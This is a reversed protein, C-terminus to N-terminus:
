SRWYFRTSMRCSFISQAANLSTQQTCSVTDWGVDCAPCNGQATKVCQKEGCSCTTFWWTNNTTCITTQDCPPLGADSTACGHNDYGPPCAACTQTSSSVIECRSNNCSCLTYTNTNDTRCVADSTCQGLGFDTELPFYTLTFLFSIAVKM